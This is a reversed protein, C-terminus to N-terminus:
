YSSVYKDFEMMDCCYLSIPLTRSQFVDCLIVICSAILMWCNQLCWLACHMQWGFYLCVYSCYSSLSIHLSISCPLVSRFVTRCVLPHLLDGVVSLWICRVALSMSSACHLWQRAESDTWLKMVSYHRHTDMWIVHLEWGTLEFKTLINGIACAVSAAIRLDITWIDILPSLFVWVCFM